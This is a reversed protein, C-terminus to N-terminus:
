ASLSGRVWQVRACRALSSLCRLWFWVSPPWHSYCKAGFRWNSISMFWVRSSSISPTPGCNCFPCRRRRSWMLPLCNRTIATDWRRLTTEEVRTQEADLQTLQVQELMWHDGAHTAREAVLMTSLRRDQTFSLLTLGYAVGGRQVADVHVFTNGDRNWAGFRGAVSSESRQALARYSMALQESHPAIFEGVSFGMAAVLLAPKLAMLAIGTLSVGAARMVVLESTTALRGLGILAGILAAFPVFEHVRRPLTYGVYVLINGFGYGEGMDDTEDVVSTLADLGVLLLLVALTSMLVARGVYWDFKHM